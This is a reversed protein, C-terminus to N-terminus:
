TTSKTWGLRPPAGRRALKSARSGVLYAAGHTGAYAATRTALASSRVGPTLGGVEIVSKLVNSDKRRKDNKREAERFTVEYPNDKSTEAPDEYPEAFMGAGSALPSYLYSRWMRAVATNPDIERDQKEDQRVGQVRHETKRKGVQKCAGARWMGRWMAISRARVM